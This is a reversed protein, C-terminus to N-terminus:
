SAGPDLHACVLRLHLALEVQLRSASDDTGGELLRNIRDLRQSVTKPHLQLVAATQNTNGNCGYFTRLTAELETRRRADYDLVPGLVSRVFGKVNREKGLLLGVFGIDSTQAYRGSSGLALLADLCTEAEARASRIENPGVVPGAAGITPRRGSARHLTASVLEATERVDPRPLALILRGGHVTSLGHHTSALEAATRVLRDREEPLEAVLVTYGAHLDVGLHRARESMGHRAHDLLIDEFLEGRVRSETEALSRRFLLLLGTVLAARELIQQDVEDAPEPRVLILHSLLDTGATVSTSCVGDGVYTRPSSRSTALVEAITAASIAETSTAVVLTESDDVVAVEGGLLNRVEQAVEALDGGHLVLAALRDHAQAAREIDANREKLLGSAIELEDLATQMQSRMRAKEVAVAAHAAFSSLLAVDTPPFPREARYGAFLVGIVRQEVLLPVGLIAVLGEERAAADAAATHRFGDDTFYSATAYPVGTQAVLGGLGDGMPVRLRRFLASTGGDTITTYYTDGVEEDVLTMYSLDSGLLRRARTVIAELVSRLETRAALDGATEYLAALEAERRRSTELIHRVDLALERAEELEAVTSAPAAAQRAQQVLADFDQAPADEALLKLFSLATMRTMITFPGDPRYCKALHSHPVPVHM